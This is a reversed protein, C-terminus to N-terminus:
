MDAPDEREARTDQRSVDRQGSKVAEYVQEARDFIYKPVYGMQDIKWNFFAGKPSKDGVVSLKYARSFRDGGAQHVMTNFKRSPKLQSRSMSLVVDELRPNEPTSDKHVLLCFHQHTYSIDWASPDDQGQVWKEADEENTCAVGFGGGQKRDKWVVYESRFFCPVIFLDGKYLANSATNFVMGEEAGDIYADENKKRQPSLDQIISLRPLSLDDASVGESGRGHNSIYDPREGGFMVLSQDENKTAVQKGAM